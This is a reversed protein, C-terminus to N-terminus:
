DQPDLPWAPGERCRGARRDRRDPAFSFAGARDCTRSPRSWPSWRYPRTDWLSGPTVDQSPGSVPADFDLDPDHLLIQEELRQLRSGPEIGLEDGLLRKIRQYETLATAQRGSRYLALVLYGWWKENYVDELILRRCREIATCNEGCDLLSALLGDEATIRVADLRHASLVLSEHSDIGGYPTGWTALADRLVGIADVSKRRAILGTGREVQSEFRLSDLDDVGAELRYGISTTVIRDAGTVKRLESVYRQISGRATANSGGPWMAEMLSDVSVGATPAASMMALITAAHGRLSRWSAGEVGVGGLVRISM